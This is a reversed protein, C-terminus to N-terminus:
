RRRLLALGGLTLLGLSAPEPIVTLNATDVGAGTLAAVFPNIDQVNIPWPSVSGDQTPDIAMLVPDFDGAPISNAAMYGLLDTTYGAQDTLAKVFPNIDQVNVLGDLNFDCLYQSYDPGDDVSVRLDFNDFGQAFTDTIKNDYLWFYPHEEPYVVSYVIVAYYAYTQTLETTLVNTNAPNNLDGWLLTSPSDTSVHQWVDLYGPNSLGRGQSYRFQVLMDVGTPVLAGSVDECYSEDNTPLSNSGYVWVRGNNMNIADWEKVLMDFSFSMPGPVHGAPAEVWQGWRPRFLVPELIHNGPNLPDVSRNVTGLDGTSQTDGGTENLDRPDDYQSFGALGGQSPPGWKALWMGMDYQQSFRHVPIGDPTAATKLYTSTEFDGGQVLNASLAAEAACAVSVAVASVMLARIVLGSHSM